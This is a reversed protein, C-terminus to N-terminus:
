FGGETPEPLSSIIPEVKDFGVVGGLSGEILKKIQVGKLRLTAGIGTSAVNYGIPEYNVRLISGSWINKDEPLDNLNHDVIRPKQTFSKGTAKNIGSAKLKFNFRVNGDSMIEYPLPARKIERPPNNKRGEEIERAIVRNIVEIDPQAEEKTIVLKLHYLGESKFAYDPEMLYPYQAEGFATTQLKNQTM